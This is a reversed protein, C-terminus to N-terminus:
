GSPPEPIDGTNITWARSMECRAFCAQAKPSECLASRPLATLGSPAAQPPLHAGFHASSPHPAEWEQPLLTPLFPSSFAVWSPFWPPRM